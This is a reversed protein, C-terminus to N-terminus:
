PTKMVEGLQEEKKVITLRRGNQIDDFHIMIAIMFGIIGFTFFYISSWFYGNGDKGGTNDFIFGQGIPVIFM